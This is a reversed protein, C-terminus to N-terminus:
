IKQIAWRLQEFTISKSPGSDYRAMMTYFENVTPEFIFNLSGNCRFVQAGGTNDPPIELIIGTNAIITQTPALGSALAVIFNQSPGLLASMSAYVDVSLKFKKNPDGIYRWWTQNNDTYKTWDSSIETQNWITNLNTYVNPITQILGNISANIYSPSEPTQTNTIRLYSEADPNPDAPNYKVNQILIGTGGVIQKLIYNINNNADSFNFNIIDNDRSSVGSSGITAVTRQATINVETNAPNDNINLVSEFITQPQSVITKFELVTGNKGKFIDNGIGVNAGDTIGGGSGGPLVYIGQWQGGSEYTKHYVVGTNQDIAYWLIQGDEQEPVGNTIIWRSPKVESYLKSPNNTDRPDPASFRINQPIQSM